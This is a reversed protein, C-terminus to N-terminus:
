EFIQVDYRTFPLTTGSSFFGAQNPYVAITKRRTGATPKCKIATGQCRSAVNNSYHKLLVV